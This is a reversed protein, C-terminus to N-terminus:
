KGKYTNWSVLDEFSRREDSVWDIAPRKISDDMYGLRYLALLEHTEPVKMLKLIKNWNEPVEMPTSVFQLGIGLSTATLWINQLAAGMSILSYIGSKEGPRYEARQLMFGLLLPAESVIKRADRGLISPVQLRNLIKVGSSSFIKSIFPRLIKPIKDVYIGSRKSDIEEKSFRFYKLYRNFFSGESILRKMSDGAIKGIEKRLGPDTVLIFDWPQSNFHSPAKNAAAIIERIHEEKLPKKLFAKNATRRRFIAEKLEM